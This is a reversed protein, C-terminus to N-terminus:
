TSGSRRTAALAGVNIWLGGRDLADLHEAFSEFDWRIGKARRTAAVHGRRVPAHADITDRDGTRRPAITFGCNGTRVTTIGHRLSCASPDWTLQADYHTYLDIFGPRRRLGRRRDGARRAGHPRRRRRHSRRAVALDGPAPRGGTGDAILWRPDRPRRSPPRGPGPRRSPRRSSAPRRRPSGRPRRPRPPRAHGERSDRRRAAWSVGAMFGSTALYGFPPDHHHFTRPVPGPVPTRIASEDLTHGSVPDKM